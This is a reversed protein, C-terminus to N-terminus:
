FRLTIGVKSVGSFAEKLSIKITQKIDQGKLPERNKYKNQLDDYTKDFDENQAKNKNNAYKKYMSEYFDDYNKNKKFEESFKDFNSKSKHYESHDDQQKSSSTKSDKYGQESDYYLNYM